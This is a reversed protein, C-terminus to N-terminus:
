EVEGTEIARALDEYQECGTGGCGQEVKALEVRALDIRGTTVYGEGIYEHTNVNRPDIALAKAYLTMAEDFRGLKRTAYGRMTFVMPDDQRQIEELIPLAVTYAGALALARGTQYLEEDPLLGARLRVCGGNAFVYGPTCTASPNSRSSGGGPASGQGGAQGGAASAGGGTASGSSGGSAGGSTGGSSAGGGTGSSAAGGSPASHSGGGSASSGGGSSGGGGGGSHAFATGCLALSFLTAAVIRPVNISTM